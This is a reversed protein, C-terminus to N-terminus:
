EPVRGGLSRDERFRQALLLLLLRLLRLSLADLALHRRADLDLRLLLLFLLHLRLSGRRLLLLPLRRLSGRRADLALGLAAVFAPQVPRGQLLPQQRRRCRRHHLRTRLCRLRIRLTPPSCETACRRGVHLTDKKPPFPGEPDETEHDGRLWIRCGPNYFRGERPGARGWPDIVCFDLDSKLSM